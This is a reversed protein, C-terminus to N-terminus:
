LIRVDFSQACKPCRVSHRGRKVPLKIIAKCHKCKRFRASKLYRLRDFFLKVNIKVNSYIRMFIENERRRKYYNRSMMRWIIYVCLIWTILQIIEILFFANIVCLIGYIVILFYEFKDAGYRGSFFKFLLSKLKNVM